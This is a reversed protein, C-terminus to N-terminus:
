RLLNLLDKVALKARALRNPKVDETLMSKAASERLCNLGTAIASGIATGDELM